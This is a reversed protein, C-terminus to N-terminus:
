KGVDARRDLKSNMGNLLSIIHEYNAELRTTRNGNLDVTKATDQALLRTTEAAARTTEVTSYMVGWAVAASLLGVVIGLFTKNAEVWTQV